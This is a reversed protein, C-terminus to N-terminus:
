LQMYTMLKKRISVNTRHSDKMVVQVHFAPQAAPDMMMNHFADKLRMTVGDCGRVNHNTVSRVMAQPLVEVLRNVNKLRKSNTQMAQVVVM